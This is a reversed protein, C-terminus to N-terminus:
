YKFGEAIQLRMTHDRWSNRELLKSFVALCTTTPSIRSSAQSYTYIVFSSFATQFPTTLKNVQLMSPNGTILSDV